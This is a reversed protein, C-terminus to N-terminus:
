RHTIRYLFAMLQERTVMSKYQMNGNTSGAILGTGEAWARPEASWDSPEQLALKDFYVQLMAEFQEQTVEKEGELIQKVALRFDNMTKNHMPFWHMVDAHNSAIGLQYGESHCIVKEIPINFSECLYACLKVSFDWVINFYNSDRLNYPECIEFGIHTNNATGAAHWGQTTWHLTQYVGTNDIFAHVCKNLNPDSTNWSQLFNKAMAGPTATSHVVIGKPYFTRNKVYCENKTLFSQIIDM